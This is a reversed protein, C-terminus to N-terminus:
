QPAAKFTMVVELGKPERNRCSVTGGCTEVCTKVITLGLGVGGTTRDRDPEIRYFTDFVRDLHEKAIGPGCDSVLIVVDDGKAEASITIPGAHGAYRLANRLLNSLARLLLETNAQVALGDPVHNIIEGKGAAERRAAQEAVSRIPVTESRIHTPKLSAKSFSLLENVLDSMHQIEERVDDLYPKQKADARQELIGLAMQLRAIPSCLEHAIDGLFRKQGTIFGTLRETMRNIAVGLQGLEDKREDEVRVDFRGDAIKGSADTVRSLAGTIHRVLPLWFLVSLLLAGGCVLLWPKYNFFLGGASFTESRALLVMPLPGTRDPSRMAMILGVWYAEPEASRILFRHHVPPPGKEKGEADPPQPARAPEEGDGDQKAAGKRRAGGRPVQRRVEDPLEMEEGAVQQNGSLILFKVGYIEGFQQLIGDWATDPSNELETVIMRAVPEVRQGTYVSLFSDFGARLQVRLTIWAAVALLVLNLFFWLLIKAYLPFRAKM